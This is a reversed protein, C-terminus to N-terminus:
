YRAFGPFPRRGLAQLEPPLVPQHPVEYSYTVPPDHETTQPGGHSRFFFVAGATSGYPGHTVNAPRWTYAGARMLGTNGACEGALVFIEQIVPHRESQTERFYPMCATVYTIEGTAPDARLRRIRAHGAMVDLGMAKMDANWDGERVDIRATLRAPDFDAARGPALPGSLFTLVTAGEPASLGGRSFGKPWFGYCDPGFRTGAHDLAGDLVLFEEDVGLIEAPRSWGRPYKVITSVAGTTDDRSLVKVAIGPRGAGLGDLGWPLVQAQIFEIHPRPM